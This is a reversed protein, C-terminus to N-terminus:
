VARRSKETVEAEDSAGDLKKRLVKVDQDVARRHINYVARDSAIAARDAKARYKATKLRMNSALPQSLALAIHPDKPALDAM